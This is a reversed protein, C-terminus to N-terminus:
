GEGKRRGRQRGEWQHAVGAGERAGGRETHGTPQMCLTPACHPTCVTNTHLGGHQEVVGGLAHGRGNIGGREAHRTPRMCLLPRLPPPAACAGGENARLGWRICEGEGQNAWTGWEGCAPPPCGPVPHM